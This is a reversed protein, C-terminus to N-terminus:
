VKRAQHDGVKSRLSEHVWHFPVLAISGLCKPHGFVLASALCVFFCPLQHFRFDTALTSHSQALNNGSSGVLVQLANEMNERKDPRERVPVCPKEVEPTRCRTDQKVDLKPDERQLERGQIGIGKRTKIIHLKNRRNVEKHVENM